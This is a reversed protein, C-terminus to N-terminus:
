CPEVTEGPGLPRVGGVQPYGTGEETSRARARTYTERTVSGRNVLNLAACMDREGKKLSKLLSYGHASNM